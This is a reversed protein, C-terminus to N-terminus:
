TNNIIISEVGNAESYNFTLNMVHIVSINCYDVAPQPTANKMKFFGKIDSFNILWPTIDCRYSTDSMHSLSDCCSPGQNLGGTSQPPRETSLEHVSFQGCIHM